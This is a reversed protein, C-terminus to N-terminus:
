ANRKEMDHRLSSSGGLKERISVPGGDGSFGLLESDGAGGSLARLEEGTLDWGCRMAGFRDRM